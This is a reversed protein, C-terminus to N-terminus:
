YGNLVRLVQDGSAFGSVLRVERQGFAAAHFSFLCVKDAQAAKAMEQLAFDVADQNADASLLYQIAMNVGSLLRSQQNALRQSRLIAAEKQLVFFLQEINLPKLLYGDIKLNIARSCINLIM